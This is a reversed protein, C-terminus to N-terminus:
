GEITLYKKLKVEAWSDALDDVDILKLFFKPNPKEAFMTELFDKCDTVNLVKGGAGVYRQTSCKALGEIHNVEGKGHRACQIPM